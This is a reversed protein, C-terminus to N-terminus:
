GGFRDLIDAVSRYYGRGFLNLHVLLYYLQYITMRRTFGPSLKWTADYSDYFSRDFGGFLKSMALDQERHGFSVAPDILYPQANPGCIYNGHWLDGHLFAPPEEPCVEKLRLCLKEAKMLDSKTLLAQDSARKVQPLIREQTYFVTWDEHQRNSQPLTGIFNDHDLGFTANTTKHLHALQGGFKRWFKSSTPSTPIHELVLYAYGEQLGITMIAPTKITQTSALLRLGSAEKVLMEYAQTSSNGKVFYCTGHGSVLYAENIDGGHAIEISPNSISLKRAVQLLWEGQMM